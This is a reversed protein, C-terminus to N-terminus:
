KRREEKNLAVQIAVAARAGEGAAIISLQMERAMDGAVYVGRVSSEQMRNLALVGRASRRCGLQVSLDSGQSSSTSFFLVDGPFSGGNALVIRELRGGRGELAVARETCIRVGNRQLLGADRATFGRVNAALLTINNTWSRYRLCNEVAAARTRAYVVWRRDSYDWGDCFPCHFVSAGFFTSVNRLPPLEDCLGTALLVKRVRATVRAAQVTFGTRTKRIATVEEDHFVTGYRRCEKRALRVLLAPEVGDRSIFGNLAGSRRNRQRGSDFVVVRRRCRGLVLACSLGAAGGGIIAVDAEM